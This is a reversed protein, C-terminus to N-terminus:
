KCTKRVRTGWMRPSSGPLLVPGNNLSEHEGCAHPHVTSLCYESGSHITNGVHTPIFRDGYELNRFYDRTGWMRPSSGSVPSHFNPHRYHEGCAHPHVSEDGVVHMYAVTNGVHTPIFRLKVSPLGGVSLTGWMRPSSGPYGASPLSHHNHEGCAHPHVARSTARRVAHYTNGVHTPIFRPILFSTNCLYPTGWM